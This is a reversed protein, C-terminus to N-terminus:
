RELLNLQLNSVSNYGEYIMNYFEFYNELRMSLIQYTHSPVKPTKGYQFLSILFLKKYADYHVKHVCTSPLSIAMKFADMAEPYM